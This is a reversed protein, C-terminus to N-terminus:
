WGNNPHSLTHRGRESAALWQAKDPNVGDDLFHCNEAFYGHLNIEINLRLLYHM